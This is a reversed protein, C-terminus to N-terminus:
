VRVGDLCEDMGEDHRTHVITVGNKGSWWSAPADVGHVPPLLISGSFFKPNPSTFIAFHTPFKKEPPSNYVNCTRRLVTLKNTNNYTTCLEHLSVLSGFHGDLQMPKCSFHLASYYMLGCLRRRLCSIQISWFASFLLYFRCFDSAAPARGWVGSSSSVVSRWVGRSEVGDAGVAGGNV